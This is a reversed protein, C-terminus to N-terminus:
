KRNAITKKDNKNIQKNRARWTMKNIDTQQTSKTANKREHPKVPRIGRTSKTINKRENNANTKRM